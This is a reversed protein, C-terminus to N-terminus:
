EFIIFLSDEKDTDLPDMDFAINSVPENTTIKPVQATCRPYWFLCTSGMLGDGFAVELSYKTNADANTFRGLESNRMLQGVNVTHTRKGAVFESIAATTIEEEIYTIPATHSLTLSTPKKEVGDLKVITDESELSTGIVSDPPLYGVIEDANSWTVVSDITLKHTAADISIIKYGAESNHDNTTKNYIRSNVTFYDTEGDQLILDATTVAGNLSGKGAFGKAMFGGTMELMPYGKNTPNINMGSVTAGTMWYVVEDVEYWFSFADRSIQQRYTKSAESITAADTFASAGAGDFNRTCGTFSGTTATSVTIGTYKVAETTGGETILIVGKAPPTHGTLTDYPITTVSDTLSGNVGATYSQLVGQFATIMVAGMPANVVKSTKGAPRLLINMGWSGASDKDKINDKINLSARIEPSPTYSVNRDSTPHSAAVVADATAPFLLTGPTTEKKIFCKLQLPNLIENAM